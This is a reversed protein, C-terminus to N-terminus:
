VHARGIQEFGCRRVHAQIAHYEALAVSRVDRWERVTAQQVRRREASSLRSQAYGLHWKGVFGTSYGRRRLLEALTVVSCPAAAAAHAPGGAAHAETASPAGGPALAVSGRGATRNGEWGSACRMSSAASRVGVADATSGGVSTPLQRRPADPLNINFDISQLEASESMVGNLGIQQVRRAPLGCFYCSAYRGSLIVYRSPTCLPAPTHADAFTTGSRALADVHPTFGTALDSSQLDDAVMLLVNPLSSAGSHARVTRSSVDQYARATQNGTTM